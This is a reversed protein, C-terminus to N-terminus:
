YMIRDFVQENIKIKPVVIKKILPPIDEKKIVEGDMEHDIPGSTSRQYIQKAFWSVHDHPLAIGLIMGPLGNFHEPGGMTEIDLTYFAVVYISDPTLGNARRCEYGAIERTEDTMRWKIISVQNKVLMNKSFITMRTLTEGSDFDSFVSNRATLESVINRSEQHDGIRKYLTQSDSYELTFDFLEFQSTSNIFNDYLRKGQPKNLDFMQGFQAHNHVRKEFLIIGENSFSPNQADAKKLLGLM